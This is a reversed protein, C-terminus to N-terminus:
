AQEDLSHGFAPIFEKLFCQVEPLDIKRISDYITNGAVDFDKNGMRSEEMCKILASFRDAAKVLKWLYEEQPQVYFYQIYEERLDSPLYSLLKNKAVNEVAKYANSIEPNYYKVPTPLDGTLIETTDHFMALVALRDCNVTGGFRRNKIMGLAHAIFAVELSHESINESFTNRMLGWRNILKMRSLMSYFQNDEM